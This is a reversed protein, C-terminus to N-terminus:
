PLSLLVTAGFKYTRHVVNAYWQRDSSRSHFGECSIFNVGINYSEKQGWKVAVVTRSATM